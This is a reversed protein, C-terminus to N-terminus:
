RCPGPSWVDARTLKEDHGPKIHMLCTLDPRGRTMIECRLVYAVADELGMALGGRLPRGGLRRGPILPGSRRRKGDYGDRAGADGWRIECLTVLEWRIFRVSTSDGICTEMLSDLQQFASLGRGALRALANESHDSPAESM